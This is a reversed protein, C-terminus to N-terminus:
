KPGVPCFGPRPGISPFERCTDPRKDYVTCLRTIPHLFHCDGNPRSALMFFETGSRYSIVIKEKILRKSLKKVGSAAEDEDTVGLRILDALKVEVPMTCCHGHCGSCMGQKYSKWTSPRDKDTKM